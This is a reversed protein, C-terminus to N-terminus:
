CNGNKKKLDNWFRTFRSKQIEDSYLQLFLSRSQNNVFDPYINKLNKVYDEARECLLMCREDMEYGEFAEKSGLITKGYMLAEATKTKMGGGVHIPSVVMRARYYYDSLDDVYGHIHVRNTVNHFLAKDMGKGVVHFHGDVMPMVDNIFWQVAEVNAFFSVGVFLYDIPEKDERMVSRKARTEDFLDPFSTPLELDSHRGYIDQMLRSDRGNLTICYDAFRVSQKEWHKIALYFPLAKWGNTKMYESAFHIEINHFFMIIKVGLYNSKIHKCARGLHSHKIFVFDFHQKGIVSDIEKLYADTAKFYMKSFRGGVFPLYTVDGVCELLEQNRSNVLDAGSTIKTIKEGLYLIKNKM